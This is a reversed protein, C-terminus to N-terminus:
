RRNRLKGQCRPFRIQEPDVEDGVSLGPTWSFLATFSRSELTGHECTAVSLAIVFIARRGNLGYVGSKCWSTSGHSGIVGCFIPLNGALVETQFRVSRKRDPHPNQMASMLFADADDIDFTLEEVVIV